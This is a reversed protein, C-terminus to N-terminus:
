VPNNLCVYAIFFECLFCFFCLEKNIGKPPVVADSLYWSLHFHNRCAERFERFGGPGRFCVLIRCTLVRHKVGFFKLFFYIAKDTGKEPPGGRCIPSRPPPTFVMGETPHLTAGNISRLQDIRDLRTM